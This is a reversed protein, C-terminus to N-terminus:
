FLVEEKAEFTSVSCSDFPMRILHMTLAAGENIPLKNM